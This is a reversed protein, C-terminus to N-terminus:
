WEENIHEFTQSLLKIIHEDYISYYITKGDRFNKVFNYDRLIKLQHSIASSSMNLAYSIDCVCMEKQILCELIKIRTSNGLVKFFDAMKLIVDEDKLTSKVYNATDIHICQTECTIDKM